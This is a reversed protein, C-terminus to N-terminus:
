ALITVPTITIPLLDEDWDMKYKKGSIHVKTEWADALKNEDKDFRITLYGVAQEYYPHAMIVQGNDLTVEAYLKGLSGYDLSM